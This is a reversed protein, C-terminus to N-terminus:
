VGGGGCKNADCKCSDEPACPPPPPCSPECARPPRPACQAPTRFTCGLAEQRTQEVPDSPPCPRYNTCACPPLYDPEAPNCYEGCCGYRTIMDMDHGDPKKDPQRKIHFSKKYLQKGNFDLTNGEGEFGLFYSANLINSHRYFVESVVVEEGPNVVLDGLTAPSNEGEGVESGDVSGRKHQWSIEPRNNAENLRVGTLIFGSETTDFPKVLTDFAKDLDAVNMSKPNELQSAYDGLSNAAKDVKQNALVYRTLEITGGFLFLLLPLVLAFEVMAVGKPSTFFRRMLPSDRHM